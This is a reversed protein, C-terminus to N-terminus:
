VANSGRGSITRSVNLQCIIRQLEPAVCMSPCVRSGRRVSVKGRLANRLLPSTTEGRLAKLEKGTVQLDRCTTQKVEPPTIKCRNM